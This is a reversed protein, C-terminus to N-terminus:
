SRWTEDYGPRDSFPLALLRGIRDRRGDLGCNCRKGLEDIDCCEGGDREELAAGCTYWCDGEVVVHKWTAMEGLIRRKAEVEALVRAPSFTTILDLGPRRDRYAAAATARPWSVQGFREHDPNTIRHAEQAARATQEDANLQARLWTVLDAM